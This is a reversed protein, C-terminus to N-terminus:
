QRQVQLSLGRRFRGQGAAKPLQDLDRESRNRIGNERLLQQPRAQNRFQPVPRPDHCSQEEALQKPLQM